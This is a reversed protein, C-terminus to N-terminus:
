SNTTLAELSNLSKTALLNITEVLSLAKEQRHLGKAEFELALSLESMKPYGYCGSSGKIKHAIKAVSDWNNAAISNQLQNVNGQMNKLFIIAAERIIPDNEYESQSEALSGQPSKHSMFGKLMAIMEAEYVPKTLFGDFGSAICYDREQRFAHATLAVIVGTYANRRLEKTAEDGTMEPMQIDMLICDYPTALAMMVATKGDGCIDVTAGHKELYHKVLLQLDTADEAILMHQGNLNMDKTPKLTEASLAQQLLKKGRAFDTIEVEGIAISLKFKTGQSGTSILIIDGGMKRALNRSLALGVGLGEKKLVRANEGRAFPQFLHSVVSSDIGQGTDEVIVNLTGSNSTDFSIQFSVVIYGRETYKISNNILNILIQRFKQPDTYITQPLLGLYKIEISLGKESAVGKVISVVNEVEAVLPFHSKNIDLQGAEIKSLDLLDNVLSFLHKGNRRIIQLYHDKEEKETSNIAIDVFGTVAALPTRIEHSINTLFETKARNSEEAVTKERELTERAKQETIDDIMCVFHDFSGKNDTIPSLTLHCWHEERGKGILRVTERHPREFERLLRLLVLEIKQIDDRCVLESLHLSAIEQEGYGFLRKFEPNAFTITGMKSLRMIGLPALNVLSRFQQESNSLERTREAVLLELNLNKSELEEAYLKLKFELQKREISHRISRAISEGTLDEKCIYDQAGGLLSKSALDEDNLSSLVVIPLHPCHQVVSALTHHLTSDPLRLDLLIVDPRETELTTIGAALTTCHMLKVSPIVRRLHRRIAEAHDLEDEILVASLSSTAAM